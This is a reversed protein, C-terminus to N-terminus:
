ERQIYKGLVVHGTYRAQSLESLYGTDRGTIAREAVPGLKSYWRWQVAFEQPSAHNHVQCTAGLIPTTERRDVREVKKM